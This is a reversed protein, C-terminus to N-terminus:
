FTISFGLNGVINPKNVPVFQPTLKAVMYDFGAYFNFGTPHFNFAWGLSSGYNFLGYTFATNFWSVPKVNASLRVESWTYLGNFRTSSLAGFSLPEYDPFNYEVGLNLTTALVTTRRGKGEKEYFSFMDGFDSTMDDFQDEIPKNTSYEDDSVAFDDFGDFKFPMKGDNYGKINTWSIFGLDLIAASVVLNERINYTVGLDIGAGWGGIGPSNLDFGDILRREPEEPECAWGSPLDYDGEQKRKDADSMKTKFAGGKLSVDLNGHAVIDWENGSMKISM